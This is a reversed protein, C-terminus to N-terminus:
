LNHYNACIIKKFQFKSRPVKQYTSIFDTISNCKHISDGNILYIIDAMEAIPLDSISDTFLKDIRLIELEILSEKKIKGFVHTKLGAVQNNKLSLESAIIENKPFLYKLYISLSASIIIKRNKENSDIFFAKHIKNTILKSAFEQAYKEITKIELGKLFIYIGIKKLKLNTIIKFKRAVCFVLYLLYKIRFFFKEHGCFILFDNWTDNYTLTKDFDFVVINM